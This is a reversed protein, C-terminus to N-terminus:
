VPQNIFKGICLQLSRAPIQLVQPVYVIRPYTRDNSDRAIALISSAILLARDM